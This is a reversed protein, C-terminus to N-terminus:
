GWIAYYYGIIDEKMDLLMNETLRHGKFQYKENISFSNLAKMKVVAYSSDIVDDDTVILEAGFGKEILKKLIEDINWKAFAKAHAETFKILKGSDRLTELGIYKRLTEEPKFTPNFMILKAGVKSALLAAMFGGLSSGMVIIDDMGELDSFIVNYEKIMRELEAQPHRVDWFIPVVNLGTIKQIKQWTPNDDQKQTLRFGHIYIIM